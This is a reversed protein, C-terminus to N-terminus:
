CACCPWPSATTWSWRDTSGGPPPGPPRPVAPASSTLLEADAMRSAVQATRSAGSSGSRLSPPTSAQPSPPLRLTRVDTHPDQTKRHHQRVPTLVFTLKCLWSGGANAPPSVTAAQAKRRLKRKPPSPDQTKRRLKRESALFFTEEQLRRAAPTLRRNIFRAVVASVVAHERMRSASLLCCKV